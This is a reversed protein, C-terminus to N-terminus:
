EKPTARQSQRKRALGVTPSFDRHAASKIPCFSEARWPAPTSISAKNPPERAGKSREVLRKRRPPKDSSSKLEPREGSTQKPIPGTPMPSSRCTSSMKSPLRSRGTRIGTSSRSFCSSTLGIRIGPKSLPGNRKHGPATNRPITTRNNGSCRTRWNKRGICATMAVAMPARGIRTRSSM